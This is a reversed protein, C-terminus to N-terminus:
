FRREGFIHILDIDGQEAATDIVSKGQNDKVALLELHNTSLFRCVDHKGNLGAIHLISEGVNSLVNIELGKKLLFSVIDLSGGSCASHLVTWGRNDRIKILESFQNVLYECMEIKGSRCCQHLITEGDEQRSFINMKKEILLEVIQVNGGRAADHLVSNSSNDRINLLHPHNKVLYGCIEFKGKLCARHLISQGDNSLANTDLGKDLLFSVIEVSGGSCASHLVTWGETDKIELFEPFHNVLYECMEMKGSRCCQHLITEGGRQLANIDMKKEILLKVIQVNGGWAADHLVTNRYKDKVDLLHPYNVVLYECIEFKGNICARHLISKSDNSMANFDMGKKILFSVIEVCGGYCASHLVTWGDNDRIELLDPFHNVLYECMEMKGSRCCQHLITEGDGQLANIDMKKEILLKVIQVNGGWAADHLVTNSSKDRLDLLNPYNEVLYECVEFKGNFGALHLISRGNNSLINIDMGKEILFSVIEVSGVKCASHLATWGDNDRIELLDPFHNVLYECMEMKGSRCCQHLITEGDGQLANIDMKKEILLKVIQVNGGWAADHLVTESFKDKVDLLHPYNEVLYECVEFKGNLCAIHLISRGNNSLINIDMGKEILFFVIEVSGGRCASQLATWGDNDRIELLDPIHNVLYECMEMKGSRSCQHLITEGDGQVSYIDMKKEILLKVIQVNGGWAADHLVTESSKDKVDLLHPYNEVLYECIEFKGNICARHLISKTDNSMANFDMGKEILFSVIEVSGGYCASHLVTWGDNDRIELLDPFHNVLYECMEMKGSRCCQHLITEGGGQVANIDMKKEILLKVIQVNGERAADHLVTESSKDNVDLLHPYNEVLYECVEFKGNLCAIHLITKGDKSLANFDMGKEILFSIIEVSGGNCASHLVTWGRNDRIALLDSFHKVLYECMEMKGSRCCLHLITEGDGQLANIDMKKEILPKVIQVNGGWAADHLVTKSFKDKVDLLHPYNEVLYKFLDINGGLATYHLINKGDNDCVDLLQPYRNLLYEFMDYHGNKCAAHLISQGSNDTKYGKPKNDSPVHLINENEFLNLMYEFMDINGSFAAWHLLSKGRVDTHEQLLAPYTEILYKVMDTRGDQCACTLVTHGNDRDKEYPDFGFKLLLNFAHKDGSSAAGQLANSGQSDKIDVLFSFKELVHEILQTHQMFCIEQLLSHRLCSWVPHLSHSIQHVDVLECIRLLLEINGSQVAYFCTQLDCEVDTSLILNVIDPQNKSCAANLSRYRQRKKSNPLLYEVWRKNGVKSFHVFMSDGNTDRCTKFKSTCDESQLVHEHFNSDNWLDLSSISSYGIVSRKGIINAVRRVVYKFLSQEIYVQTSKPNKCTTLTLLLSPYCMQIIKESDFNFLVSFLSEQVSSHSFRYTNEITDHIILFGEFCFISDQFDNVYSNQLGVFELSAHKMELDLRPNDILEFDVKGGSLLVYALVATKVTQKKMLTKFYDSMFMMANKVFVFVNQKFAENSRALKCCQPFGITLPMEYVKHILEKDEIYESLEYKESFQLIEEKILANEKSSLDVLSSMLFNDDRQNQVCEQYIDNRLTFIFKNSENDIDSEILVKIMDKRAKFEQIEDSSLSFEGFLNDIFVVIGDGPSINGYLDKFKYLQLPSEGEDMLEKMLMKANTTKGTGPNGKIVVYGNNDLLEKAREFAHTKVFLHGVAEYHKQIMKKTTEIRRALRPDHLALERRMM